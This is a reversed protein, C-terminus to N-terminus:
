VRPRIATSLVCAVASGAMAALIISVIYYYWPLTWLDADPESDNVRADDAAKNFRSVVFWTVILAVGAVGGVLSSWLHQSDHIKPDPFTLGFAEIPM